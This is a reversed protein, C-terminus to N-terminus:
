VPQRPIIVGIELLRTKHADDHSVTLIGEGAICSFSLQSFMAGVSVAVISRM